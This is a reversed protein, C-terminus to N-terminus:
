GEIIVYVWFEDQKAFFGIGNEGLTMNTLGASCCTPEHNIHQFSQPLTIGNYSLHIQDGQRYFYFPQENIIRFTFIESYGLEQNLVIGDRILVDNVELFWHGDWTTLGRVPGAAPSSPLVSYTFILEDQRFLQLNSVDGVNTLNEQDFSVWLLDDGLFAFHPVYGLSSIFWYDEVVPLPLNSFNSYPFGSSDTIPLIFQSHSANILPTGVWGLLETQPKGDKYLINNQIQYGFPQLQQNIQERDQGMANWLDARHQVADKPLLTAFSEVNLSQYCASSTLKYTTMNLGAVTTKVPLEKNMYCDAPVLDPNGSPPTYERDPQLGRGIAFLLDKAAEIQIIKGPNIWFPYWALLTGWEPTPADSSPQIACGYFGNNSNWLTVLPYSGYLEHRNAELTCVSNQGEGINPRSSVIIETGDTSTTADTQIQWGPPYQLSLQFLPLQQSLWDTLPENPPFITPSPRTPLPTITAPRVTASALGSLTASSTATPPLTALPASTAEAVPQTSSVGNCGALIATLLIGLCIRLSVNQLKAM